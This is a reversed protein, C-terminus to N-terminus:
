IDIKIGSAVQFNCITSLLFLRPCTKYLSCGCVLFFVLNVSEKPKLSHIFVNTQKLELVTLVNWSNKLCLDFDGCARVPRNIDKQKRLTCVNTTFCIYLGWHRATLNMVLSASVRESDSTCIYYALLTAEIEIKVNISSNLQKLFSKIRISVM